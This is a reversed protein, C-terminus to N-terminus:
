GKSNSGGRAEIVVEDGVEVHGPGDPCVNQGFMIEGHAGRRFSSLTRLPELDPDRAGTAQDTAIVACRGCPKVIRLTTERIRIVRWEDEEWPALGEVVINPRFREMGVPAALRRNLDALSASATVLLAFGDALSVRDAPAAFAPDAIRGGPDQQFVLSAPTGLAATLFANAQPPAVKARVRDGWVTADIEAADAELDFALAPLAEASLELGTGRLRAGVRALAPTLRQTLMEGDAGVAMWRRDGALGQREIVASPVSHGRMAKVPYINIQSVHPM